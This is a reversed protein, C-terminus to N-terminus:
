KNATLSNIEESIEKSMRTGAAVQEPNMKKLLKERQKVAGQHGQNAAIDFWAYAKVIDKGEGQSGRLCNLALSYQSSVNGEKASKNSMSSSLMYVIAIFAAVGGYFIMGDIVGM